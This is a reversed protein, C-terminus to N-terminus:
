GSLDIIDVKSGKAVLTGAPPSTGFQHELDAAPAKGVTLGAATIASKAQALSDESVNPVAVQPAVPENSDSVSLDIASGRTIAAGERPETAFVTGAPAETRDRITQGVVACTKAIASKAAEEKLGVLKPVVCSGPGTSTVLGVTSGVAVSTGAPPNSSVVSGAPVTESPTSTATVPRLRAAGIARQAAALPIGVTRPVTVGAAVAAPAATRPSTGTGRVPVSAVIKGDMGPVQVAGSRPGIAAPRFRVGFTCTGGAPATIRSCTDAVLEFDAAAPGGPTLEGLVTGRAPATLTVTFPASSTGVEQPAFAIAPPNSTPGIPPSGTGSLRALIPSADAM